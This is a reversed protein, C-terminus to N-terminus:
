PPIDGLLKREKVLKEKEVKVKKLEEMKHVMRIEANHIYSAKESSGHNKSKHKKVDKIDDEMEAILHKYYDIMNNQEQIKEDLERRACAIDIVKPAAPAPASNASDKAPRSDPYLERYPSVVANSLDRGHISNHHVKDSSHKEDSFRWRRWKEMSMYKECVSRMSSYNYGTHPLFKPNVLDDFTLYAAASTLKPATSNSTLSNHNFGEGHV